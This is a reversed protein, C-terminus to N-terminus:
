TERRGVQSAGKELVKQYCQNADYFTFAECDLYSALEKFAPHDAGASQILEQEEPTLDLRYHAYTEELECWAEKFTDRKM